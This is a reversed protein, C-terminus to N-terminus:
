KAKRRFEYDPNFGQVIEFEGLASMPCSHPDKVGQGLETVDVARLGDGRKMAVKYMYYRKKRAGIFHFVKLVDGVLVPRRNKDYFEKEGM